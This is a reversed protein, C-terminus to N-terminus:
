PTVGAALLLQAATAGAEDDNFAEGIIRATEEPDLLLMAGPCYSCSVAADGLSRTVLRDTGIRKLLVFLGASQRLGLDTDVAGAYAGWVRPLRWLNAPSSLQDVLGEAVQQQRRIRDFDSSGERIRGYAVATYGDLHQRGEPFFQPVVNVDDDSYNDQGFAEGVAVTVGGAADVIRAVDRQDFTIHYDVHIGLNEEVTRALARPAADGDESSWNYVFATNVRDEIVGGEDLTIRMLADRPISLVGARNHDGDVRLLIISDTRSPQREQSPRIDLGVIMVTFPRDPLGFVREPPLGPLPVALAFGAVSVPQVLTVLWLFLYVAIAVPAALWWRKPRPGLEPPPPGSPLSDLKPPASPPGPTRRPAGLAPSPHREREPPPTHPM